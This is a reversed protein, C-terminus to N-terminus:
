FLVLNYRDLIAIGMPMSEFLMEQLSGDGFLDSGAVPFQNTNPM